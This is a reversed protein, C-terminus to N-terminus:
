HDDEHDAVQEEALGIGQVLGAVSKEQGRYGGPATGKLEMFYEPYKLMGEAEQYIM